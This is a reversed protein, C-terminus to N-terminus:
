SPEPHISISLGNLATSATIQCALRDAPDGGHLAALLLREVRDAPMLADFWATGVTIRCTGCSKNGGCVGQVLGAHQLATLVRTGTALALQLRKGDTSRVAIRINEAHTPQAIGQAPFSPEFADAHFNEDALGCQKRLHARSAHIMAPAGCAYVKAASLDRHHRAAVEQVYGREGMWGDHGHQLVPHFHFLPEQTALQQFHELLYLDEVTAGGWYLFIREKHSSAFVREIFANLPAVGTGTALLVTPAVRQQRHWVCDGFPGHVRLLDGPSLKRDILMRSFIGAQHLRIHLVIQGDPRRANAMSYPRLAGDPLEIALYQGERYEMAEGPLANLTLRVVAAGLHEITHVRMAFAQPRLAFPVTQAMSFKDPTTDL